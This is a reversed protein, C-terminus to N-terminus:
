VDTQPLGKDAVVLDVRNVELAVRHCHALVGVYEAVADVHPLDLSDLLCGLHLVDLHVVVRAMGPEVEIADNRLAGVKDTKEIFSDFLRLM